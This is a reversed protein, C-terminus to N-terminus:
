IEPLYDDGDFAPASSTGTTAGSAKKKKKSKKTADTGTATASTEVVTSPAQDSPSKFTDVNGTVEKSEHVAAPTDIDDPSMPEIQTSLPIVSPTIMAVPKTAASLASVPTAMSAISLHTMNHSVEDLEGDQGGDERQNDVRSTTPITKWHADSSVGTNDPSISEDNSMPTPVISKLINAAESDFENIQDGASGKTPTDYSYISHLNERRRASNEGDARMKEMVTDKAAEPSRTTALTDLLTHAESNFDGLGGVKEGSATDVATNTNINPEKINNANTSSSSSSSFFSPISLGTPARSPVSQSEKKPTTAAQRMTQLQTLGSSITKSFWGGAVSASSSMSGFSVSKAGSTGSASAGITTNSKVPETDANTVHVPSSDADITSSFASGSSPNGNLTAPTATTTTTTPGGSRDFRSMIPFSLGSSAQKRRPSLMPAQRPDPDCVDMSSEIMQHYALDKATLSSEIDKDIAIVKDRAAYFAKKAALYETKIEEVKGKMDLVGEDIALVSDIFPSGRNFPLVILRFSSKGFLNCGYM